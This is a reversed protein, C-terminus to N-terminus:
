LTVSATIYQLDDFFDTPVIAYDISLKSGGLDLNLGAGFTVGKFFTQDMDDTLQYGGRVYVIDQFGLELGGSYQDQDFSNSRFNGLVTVVSGAGIDRSYAVGFNLLAPLQM